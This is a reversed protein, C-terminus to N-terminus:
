FLEILNEFFNFSAALGLAAFSGKAAAGAFRASRQEGFFIDMQGCRRCKVELRTDNGSLYAKFLLKNCKVCRYERLSMDNSNSEAPTQM